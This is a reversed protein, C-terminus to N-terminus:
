EKREFDGSFAATLESNEYEVTISFRQTNKGDLRSLQNEPEGRSRRVKVVTIASNEVLWFDLQKEVERESVGFFTREKV